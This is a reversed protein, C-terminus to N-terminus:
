SGGGSLEAMIKSALSDPQPMPARHTATDTLVRKAYRVAIDTHREPHRLIFTAMRQRHEDPFLRHRIM